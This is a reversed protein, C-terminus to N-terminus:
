DAFRSWNGYPREVYVSEVDVPVTMGGLTLLQAVVRLPFGVVTTFDGELRAILEVGPGQIAYAGAKGLSDETALYREHADQDFPKIWVRASSVETREFQRVRCIATVATKVLHVRGALQRLMSRAEALDRPKGLVAVEHEILTDSALVLAEPSQGAVSAAKAKAFDAVLDGAPLQPRMVEECQPAQVEFPIKLLALLERRRPSTSALVLRM